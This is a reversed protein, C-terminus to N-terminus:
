VLHHCTLCLGGELDLTGILVLMHDLSGELVTLTVVDLFQNVCELVAIRRFKEKFQLLLEEFETISIIEEFCSFLFDETLNPSLYEFFPVFFVPVVDQFSGAIMTGAVRIGLLLFKFLQDM